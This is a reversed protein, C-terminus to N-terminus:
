AVAKRTIEMIKRVQKKDFDLRRLANGVARPTRYSCQRMFGAESDCNFNGNSQRWAHLLGASQISSALRNLSEDNVMKPDNTMVRFTPKALAYVHLWAGNVSCRHSISTIEIEM